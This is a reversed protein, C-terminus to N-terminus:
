GAVGSDGALRNGHPFRHPSPIGAQWTGGVGPGGSHVRETGSAGRWRVEPIRGKTGFLLVAESHTHALPAHLAASRPLLAASLLYLSGLELPLEPPTNQTHQQPANTGSPTRPPNHCLGVWGVVWLGCGSTNLWARAARQAWGGGDGLTQTQTQTQAMVRVRKAQAACEKKQVM